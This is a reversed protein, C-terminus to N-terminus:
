EKKYKQEQKDAIFPNEIFDNIKKMQYSYVFKTKANEDKIKYRNGNM